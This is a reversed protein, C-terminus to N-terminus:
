NGPDRNPTRNWHLSWVTDSDRFLNAHIPHPLAPDDIILAIYEGAKEGVRKWGAGIEPGEENGNHLRYDPANEADSADVPVLTVERYLTFTHIRGVFGTAERTFQGIQSM